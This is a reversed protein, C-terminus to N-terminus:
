SCTTHIYDIAYLIMSILFVKDDNGYLLLATSGAKEAVVNGCASTTSKVTAGSVGEAM